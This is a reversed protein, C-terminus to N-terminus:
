LRVQKSDVQFGSPQTNQLKVHHLAIHLFLTPCGFIVFYARYFLIHLELGKQEKALKYIVFKGDPCFLIVSWQWKYIM